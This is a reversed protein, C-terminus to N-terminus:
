PWRPMDVMVLTKDPVLAVEQSLAVEFRFRQQPKISHSGHISGVAPIAIVGWAFVCVLIANAYRRIFLKKTDVM